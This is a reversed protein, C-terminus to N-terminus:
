KKPAPKKKAAAKKPTIYVAGRLLQMKMGGIDLIRALATGLPKKELKLTLPKKLLGQKACDPDAIINADTLGRLYNIAEDAPQKTFEVSVTKALKAKINKVWAAKPAPPPAPAAGKKLPTIYIAHDAFRREFKALRFIWFLATELDAQTMKLTVAKASKTKCAPDLIMNVNSVQQLFSMAETVPAGVFEFNIKKALRAEASVQFDSKTLSELLKGARDAIEKDRHKLLKRVEPLVAPGLKRVAKSAADREKWDKAGLKRLHGALLKRDAATLKRFKPPSDLCPVEPATFKLHSLLVRGDTGKYARAGALRALHRILSALPVSVLRMTIPIRALGKDCATKVGLGSIYACVEGLPQGNFEVSVVKALPDKAPKEGARAPTGAAALAFCAALILISTRM